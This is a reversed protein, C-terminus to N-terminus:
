EKESMVLKELYEVDKPSLNFKVAAQEIVTRRKKQPHDKLEDSIWQVAKRIMEGEPQVTTM